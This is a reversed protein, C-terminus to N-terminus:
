SAALLRGSEETRSIFDRADQSWRRVDAFMPSCRRVDTFMQSCRHVDAFMPSCRRVDAFMPSCRRVDTFMQSCRRVDAFMPSYRRVDAFMPSCRRVVAFMPSCRCTKNSRHRPNDLSSWFHKQTLPNIRGLNTKTIRRPGLMQIAKKSIIKSIEHVGCIRSFWALDISPPSHGVSMKSKFPRYDLLSLENSFKNYNQFMNFPKRAESKFNNKCKRSRHKKHKSNLVKQCTQM